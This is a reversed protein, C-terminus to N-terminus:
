FFYIYFPGSTLLIHYKFHYWCQLLIYVLQMLIVHCQLYWKNTIYSVWLPIVMLSARVLNSFKNFLNSILDSFWDHDPGAWLLPLCARLGPGWFKPPSMKELGMMYFLLWTHKSCVQLMIYLKSQHNAHRKLLRLSSWLLHKLHLLGPLKMASQGSFLLLDDFCLELL